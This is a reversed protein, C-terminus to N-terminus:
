ITPPLEITAFKVLSMCKLAPCVYVPTLTAAADEFTTGLLRKNEMKKKCLCMREWTFTWNQPCVQLFGPSFWNQVNRSKDSIDGMQTNGAAGHCQKLPLKQWQKYCQGCSRFLWLSCPHMQCFIMATWIVCKSGEVMNKIPSLYKSLTGQTGCLAM